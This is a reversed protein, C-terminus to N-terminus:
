FTLADANKPVSINNARAFTMASKTAGYMNKVYGPTEKVVWAGARFKVLAGGMQLPNLGKLGAGFQTASEALKKAKLASVVLLTLGEAYNKKAEADMQPKAAIREDIAKQVAESTEVSKKIGATDTAGSSLSKKEAELLQMQEALGFAKAFSSQAALTTAQADIFQKVLADQAAADPAIVDPAAATKASDSKGGLGPLKFQAHAPVAILVSSVLLSVTIKRLM